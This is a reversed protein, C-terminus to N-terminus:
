ANNVIICNTTTTQLHFFAHFSELLMAIFIHQNVLIMFRLKSLHIEMNYALDIMLRKLNWLFISSLNFIVRCYLKSYVIVVHKLLFKGRRKNREKKKTQEEKEKKKRKRQVKYIKPKRFWNTMTHSYTFINQDIRFAKMQVILKIVRTSTNKRTKTNTEYDFNLLIYDVKYTAVKKIVWESM